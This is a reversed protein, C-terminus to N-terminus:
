SWSKGKPRRQRFDKPEYRVVQFLVDGAEDCYDYAAVLQRKGTAAAPQGHHPPALDAMTLGAAAVVTQVDCGAHCHLLVRGDDGAGISLSAKRDDHAPCRAKWGKGSKGVGRFHSLIWEMPKAM